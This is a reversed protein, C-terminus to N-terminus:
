AHLQLIPLQRRMKQHVALDGHIITGKKFGDLDCASKSLGKAIYSNRYFGSKEMMIALILPALSGLLYSRENEKQSFRQL